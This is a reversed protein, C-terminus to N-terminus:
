FILGWKLYVSNLIYSEERLSHYGPPLAPHQIPQLSRDYNGQFFSAHQRKFGITWTFSHKRKLASKRIGILPSAMLGGSYWQESWEDAIRRTLLASGGGVDMGAFWTTSKGKERFGRWGLAMPILTLNPYTDIGVSFGVAQSRHFRVGHFTSFTFNIRQHAFGRGESVKGLLAGVDTQTFYGIDQATLPASLLILFLLLISTNQRMTLYIAIWFIHM